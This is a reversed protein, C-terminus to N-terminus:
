FKQILQHSILDYGKYVFEVVFFKYKRLYELYIKDGPYLNANELKDLDVWEFHGENGPVAEGNFDSSTYLFNVWDFEAKGQGTIYVVGKLELSNIKIGSEEEVERIACTELSEGLEVKGGIPLYMGQKHDTDGAKNRVLFLIKNDRILYVATTVKKM